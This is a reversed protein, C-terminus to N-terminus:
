DDDDDDDDDDIEDVNYYCEVSIDQVGMSSEILSFEINRNKNINIHNNSVNEDYSSAESM